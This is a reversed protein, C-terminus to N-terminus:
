VTFNTTKSGHSIFLKGFPDPRTGHARPDQDIHAKGPEHRPSRQKEVIPEIEM